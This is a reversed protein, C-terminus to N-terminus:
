INVLAIQTFVQSSSLKLSFGAKYKSRYTEFANFSNQEESQFSFLNFFIRYLKLNIVKEQFEIFYSIESNTFETLCFTKLKNMLIFTCQKSCNFSYCYIVKSSGANM